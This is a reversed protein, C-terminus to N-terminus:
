ISNMDYNSTCRNHCHCTLFKLAHKKKKPLFTNGTNFNVALQCSHTTPRIFHLKDSFPAYSKFITSNVDVINTTSPEACYLYIYICCFHPIENRFVSWECSAQSTALKVTIIFHFNNNMFPQMYLLQMKAMLSNKFEHWSPFFVDIHEPIVKLFHYENPIYLRCKVNYVANSIHHCMHLFWIEDKPSVSSDM